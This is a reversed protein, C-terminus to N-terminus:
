THTESGETTMQLPFIYEEGVLEFFDKLESPLNNGPAFGSEPQQISPPPPAGSLTSEALQRSPEDEVESFDSQIRDLQVSAPLDRHPETVPTFYFLMLSNDTELKDSAVVTYKPKSSKGHELTSDQDHKQKVGKDQKTVYLYWSKRSLRSGIKPQWIFFPSERKWTVTTQPIGVLKNVSNKLVFSIKKEGDSSPVLKLPQHGDPLVYCKTKTIETKHVIKFQKREAVHEIYFTSAEEVTTTGCLKNDIVQLYIEQEGENLDRCSIKFPGLLKGSCSLTSLSYVICTLLTHFCYSNSPM